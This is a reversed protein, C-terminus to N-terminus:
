AAKRSPPSLLDRALQEFRRYDSLGPSYHLQSPGPPTLTPSARFNTRNDHIWDLILKAGTVSSKALLTLLNDVAPDFAFRCQKVIAGTDIGKDVFHLTVGVNGFDRNLVAWFQGHAGRYMPTVGAHLNVFCPAAALVPEKIISTGLVVVLEPQTKQLVDIVAPDNISEVRRVACDSEFSSAARVECYEACALAQRKLRLKTYAGLLLRDLWYGRRLKKGRRFVARLVERRPRQQKVVAVLDVEAALRSFVYQSGASPGMLVAVRPRAERPGTCTEAPPYTM